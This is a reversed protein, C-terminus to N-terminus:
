AQADSGRAIVVAYSGVGLLRRGDVPGESLVLATVGGSDADFEVDVVKGLDYGDETLVRKFRLEHDKGLLHEVSPHANRLVSKDSVTVADPGFANLDAWLLLDADGETKKLLLAVVQATPPDIVFSKVTGITLAASTSMVKHGIVETFRM